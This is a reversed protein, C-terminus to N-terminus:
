NNIMFLKFYLNQSRISRFHLFYNSPSILQSQPLLTASIWELDLKIFGDHIRHGLNEGCSKTKNSLTERQHHNHWWYYHHRLQYDGKPIITDGTIITDCNITERQYLQTVLLLSTADPLRGKTIITDGNIVTDWVTTKRQHHSHWWYYHHRMRYDEKPSPQTM